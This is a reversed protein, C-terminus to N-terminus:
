RTGWEQDRVAGLLVRGGVAGRNSLTPVQGNLHLTHSFDALQDTSPRAPPTTDTMQGTTMGSRFHGILSGRPYGLSHNGFRYAGEGCNFECNALPPAPIKPRTISRLAGVTGPGSRIM